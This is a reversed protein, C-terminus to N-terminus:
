NEGASFILPKRALKRVWHKIFTALLFQVLARRLKRKVNAKKEGLTGTSFYLSHLHM